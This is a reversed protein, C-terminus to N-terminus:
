IMVEADLSESGTTAFGILVKEKHKIIGLIKM